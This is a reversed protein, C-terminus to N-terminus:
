KVLQIETDAHPVHVLADDVIMTPASMSWGEHALTQISPHPDHPTIAGLLVAWMTFDDPQHPQLTGMNISVENEGAFKCTAEESFDLVYDVENPLTFDFGEAIVDGSLSSEITTVLDVPVVM